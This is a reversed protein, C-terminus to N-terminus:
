VQNRIMTLVVSPTEQVAISPNGDQDMALVTHTWGKDRTITVIKEANVHVQESSNDRTLTVFIM